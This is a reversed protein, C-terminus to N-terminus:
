LAPRGLVRRGLRVGSRVPPFPTTFADMFPEEIRSWLGYLRKWVEGDGDAFQDLSAATEDVDRSLVVTPGEATPHAVVLPAHRWRLGWRELELQQIAPSAAAFPYFASFIDHEYGP